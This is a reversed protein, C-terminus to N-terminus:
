ANNVNTVYVPPVKTLFLLLLCGRGKRIRVSSFRGYNREHTHTNPNHIWNFQVRWYTCECSVDGKIFSNTRQKGYSNTFALSQNKGRYNAGRISTLLKDSGQVRLALRRGCLSRRLVLHLAWCVLSLKALLAHTQITFPLAPDVPCWQIAARADVKFQCCPWPISFSIFYM